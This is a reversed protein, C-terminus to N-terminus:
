RRIVLVLVRHSSGFGVLLKNPMFRSQVEQKTFAKICEGLAITDEKTTLTADASKDRVEKQSHCSCTLLGPSVFCHKTSCFRVECDPNYHAASDTWQVSLSAKSERGLFFAAREPDGSCLIILPEGDGNDFLADSDALVCGNCERSYGCSRLSL